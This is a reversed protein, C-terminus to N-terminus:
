PLDLGAGEELDKGAAFNRQLGFTKLHYLAFIDIVVYNKVTHVHFVRLFGFGVNPVDAALLL